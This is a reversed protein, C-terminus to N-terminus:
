SQRSSYVTNVAAIDIKQLATRHNLSSPDISVNCAHTRTTSLRHPMNYHNRCFDSQFANTADTWGTTPNHKKLWPTSLVITYHALCILLLPVNKEVQDGTELGGRTYHLITWADESEDTFVYLRFPRFLNRTPLRYEGAGTDDLIAHKKCGTNLLSYTEASCHRSTV